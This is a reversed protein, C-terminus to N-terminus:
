LRKSKRTQGGILTFFGGALIKGDAQGALASVYDNAGPNFGDLASQARGEAVLLGLTLIIVLHRAPYHMYRKNTTEVGM